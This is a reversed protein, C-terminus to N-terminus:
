IQVLRPKLHPIQVGLRKVTKHYVQRCSCYHNKNGRSPGRSYQSGIIPWTISRRSAFGQYSSALWFTMPKFGLDLLFFNSAFDRSCFKTPLLILLGKLFLKQTFFVELARKQPRWPRLRGSSSSPKSHGPSTGAGRWSEDSAGISWFPSILSKSIKSFAQAPKSFPNSTNWLFDLKLPILDMPVFWFWYIM